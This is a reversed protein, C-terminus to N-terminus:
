DARAGGPQSSLLEDIDILGVPQNEGDSLEAVGALHGDRRRRERAEEVRKLSHTGAKPIQECDVAVRGGHSSELVLLVTPDSTQGRGGLLASLSYATLLEGDYRLLGIVAPPALPVPTVSRLPLCARVKILPLALRERGLKFEAVHFVAEEVSEKARHRLREARLDLLAKVEPPVVEPVADRQWGSM